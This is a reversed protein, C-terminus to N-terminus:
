DEASIDGDEPIDLMEDDITVENEKSEENDIDSVFPDRDDDVEQAKKTEEELMIRGAACPQGPKFCHIKDDDSGDTSTTIACSLFSDKVMELSVAAWSAKVWECLLSRSPPKLNGGRTFEHCDPEAIWTDYQRRMHSKFCANWVVDAAQIFKTCGGPIIATDLRLRTAEAQTAKSTHCRYADWILLRKNFSLQGIITRLYDTTLSDNMWGNSSFRVVIGGINQLAKILRTGKGKFVVYPMLKVGDARATLIVTFHDKEHGTTKIPVSRAGTSDVTTDSPMDMWCATEDMAFICSQQYKEHKQLSRLHTIYTVMKPICDAPASQCVTMNRRLSLGHRTMFKELWGRSATFSEVSALAKAQLQIMKRSVRVNRGRLEMIWSLLTEEMDESQVRRGAGDLQKRKSGGQKKLELLKEKQACWERIRRPDVSFERAAAEKSKKEAVEVAQLKTATDYSGKRKSMVRVLRPLINRAYSSAYLPLITIAM